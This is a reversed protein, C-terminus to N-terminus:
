VTHAIALDQSYAAPNFLFKVGVLYRSEADEIPIQRTWCVEVLGPTKAVTSVPVQIEFVQQVPPGQDMLLLMGGKSINVSLAEGQHIAIADDGLPESLEYPCYEICDAREARRCDEPVPTVSRDQLPESGMQEVGTAPESFNTENAACALRGILLRFLLHIGSDSQPSDMFPSSAEQKQTKRRQWEATLLSIIRELDASRM